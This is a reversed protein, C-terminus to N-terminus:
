QGYEPNATPAASSVTDPFEIDYPLRWDGAGTVQSLDVTVVINSNSLKLLDQRQGYIKLDVTADRGASLVLNRDSFLGDENTFTVPIHYIWQSDEPTVTSVVYIWLCVAITLSLLISVIKNKKM